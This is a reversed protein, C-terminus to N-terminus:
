GDTRWVTGVVEGEKLSYGVMVLKGDLELADRAFQEGTGGWAESGPDVPVWTRGDESAWATGDGCSLKSDTSCAGVTRVGVAVFRGDVVDVNYAVEFTVAAPPPPTTVRWTRGGDTSVLFLSQSNARDGQQGVAVVTDGAAVATSLEGYGAVDLVPSEVRLWSVGDDTSRWIVLDSDDRGGENGVAVLADGVWTVGYAFQNGEGGLEGKTVRQWTKAGDASRWVGADASGTSGDRGVAVVTKGRAAVSFAVQDGAPDFIRDDADGSRAWTEGRDTSRWIRLAFDTNVKSMGVAVLDDGVRTVAKLEQTGPRNFGENEVPTWTTGDDSWWAAYDTAGPAGRFGVAVLRGDIAVADQIVAGNLGQVDLREITAAAPPTAGSGGGGGFIDFGAFGDILLAGAVGCAALVLVLAFMGAIRRRKRPRRSGPKRAKPPPAEAAPQPQPQLPPAVPPNGFPPTRPPSGPLVSTPTPQWGPDVRGRQGAQARQDARGPDAPMQRTADFGVGVGAGAAGLAAGAPGAGFHGSLPDTADSYTTVLREVLQALEAAVAHAPPRREPDHALCEGVLAGLSAPVGRRELDARVRRSLAAPHESAELQPPAGALLATLTAGLAWVDAEPGQEGRWLEPAAYGPTHFAQSTTDGVLRSVGFDALYADGEDSLLINAPKLDGHLIDNGHAAALASAVRAGTTLAFSLPLQGARLRDAVTGGALFRMVLYAHGPLVGADYVTVVANHSSLRGLAQMERQVRRLTTAQDGEVAVVKVAVYRDLARQHGRYVVGFGGRGIVDLLDIGPIALGPPPTGPTGSGDNVM